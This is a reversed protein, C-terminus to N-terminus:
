RISTVLRLYNPAGEARAAGAPATKSQPPGATFRGERRAALIAYFVSIESTKRKGM